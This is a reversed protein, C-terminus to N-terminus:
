IEVVAIFTHIECHKEHGALDGMANAAGRVVKDIPNGEFVIIFRHAYIPTYFFKLQESTSSVGAAEDPFIRVMSGWLADLSVRLLSESFM